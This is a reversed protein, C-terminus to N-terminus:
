SSGIRVQSSLLRGVLVVQDDRRPSFPTYEGVQLYVVDSRVSVERRQKRKFGRRVALDRWADALSAEEDISLQIEESM